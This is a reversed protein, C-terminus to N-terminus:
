NTPIQEYQRVYGGDSRHYFIVNEDSPYVMGLETTAVNYIETLDISKNLYVEKADNDARSEQLETQLTEIKKSTSTIESRVSLLFMCAGILAASVVFLFIVKYLGSLDRAPKKAPSEIVEYGAQRRPRPQLKPAATGYNYRPNYARQTAM